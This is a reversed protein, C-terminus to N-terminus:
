TREVDSWAGGGSRDGPEVGPGHRDADEAPLDHSRAERLPGPCAGESLVAKPNPLVGRSAARSGPTPNKEAGGTGRPAVKQSDGNGAM